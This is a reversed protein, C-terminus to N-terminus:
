EEVNIAYQATDGHGPSWVSPYISPHHGERWPELPIYECTRDSETNHLRFWLLGAKWYEDAATGAPIQQFM